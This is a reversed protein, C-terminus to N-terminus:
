NVIRTSPMLHCHRYDFAPAKHKCLFPKRRHPWSSCSCSKCLTVCMSMPKTWGHTPNPLINKYLTGLCCCNSTQETVAFIVQKNRCELGRWLAPTPTDTLIRGATASLQVLHSILVLLKNERPCRCLLLEVPEWANWSYILTSNCCLWCKAKM